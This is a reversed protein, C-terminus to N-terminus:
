VFLYKKIILIWLFLFSLFVQILRLQSVLVEDLKYFFRNFLQVMCEILKIEASNM